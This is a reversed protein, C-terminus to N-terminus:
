KLKNGEEMSDWEPPPSNFDKGDNGWDYYDMINWVQKPVSNNIQLDLMTGIRCLNDKNDWRVSYIKKIFFLPCEGACIPVAEYLNNEVRYWGWQSDNEDGRYHRSGYLCQKTPDAYLWVLDDQNLIQELTFKDDFPNGDEQVSFPTPSPIAPTQTPVRKSLFTITVLVVIVLITSRPSFRHTKM